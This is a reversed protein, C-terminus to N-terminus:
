EDYLEQRLRNKIQQTGEKWRGKFMGFSARVGKNPRAILLKIKEHEKIKAAEVVGKPLRIGVSNGWKRTISEFEIM